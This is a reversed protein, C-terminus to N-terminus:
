QIEVFFYYPTIKQNDKGPEGVILQFDYSKNNFAINPNIITTYVINKASDSLLIQYFKNTQTNNNININTSRCSNKSINTTGVFFEPHATRSFTNSVSDDETSIQKLFTEENQIDTSDACNITAFNVDFARSAYVEGSPSAVSWNYFKNGQSDKLTIDGTINGFFGQWSSTIGTVNLNLRSVNNAQAGAPSPIHTLNFRESSIETVDAGSPGRTPNISVHDTANLATFGFLSGDCNVTYNFNGASNFSRNYTFLGGSYIMTSQTGNFDITCIAGSIPAGSSRNSYNAYVFVNNGITLRKTDSDDSINLESNEAAVYTTFHPVTFSLSGNYSINTCDTCLTDDKLIIPNTLNLNELVLTASKNLAPMAVSDLYIFNHSIHIIKDLDGGKSLNLNRNFHIKGFGQKSVSFNSINEINVNTFNTTGEDFSTTKIIGIHRITSYGVNGAEDACTIFWNHIGPSLKTNQVITSQKNINNRSAVLISDIYIECLNIKSADNASYRIQIKGDNDGSNDIPTILTINPPDKDLIFNHTTLVPSNNQNNLLVGDINTLKAVARYNVGSNNTSNWGNTKNWINAINISQGPKITTKNRTITNNLVSYIPEWKNHNYTEITLQLYGTINTTGTNNLYGSTIPNIENGIIYAPEPYIYQRIQKHSSLQTEDSPESSTGSEKEYHAYVPKNCTMMWGSTQWTRDSTTGLGFFIKNIDTRNGSTQESVKAGSSNYVACTTNPEPAAIAIYQVIEAAGYLYDLEKYPWFTNAEVGDSDAQSNAGVPYNTSKIRYAPGTGQTGLAGSKYNQNSSISTSSKTGDSIDMNVYAGNDGAGINLYNTPVGYLYDTTAPYFLQSDENAGGNSALYQVLIPIDSTIRVTDGDTIDKNAIYGSSNVLGNWIRTGSDYISVNATGFPSLLDFRSTYRDSRYYFEKGAQSIPSIIDTGDGQSTIHVAKEAKITENMSKAPFITTEGANLTQTSNGIIITNNDELSIISLPQTSLVDSVIYGITKPTSYSFAKSINSTKTAGSNKYYLYIETKENALMIPIKTWITTQTTNCANPGYEEYFFDLAKNNQSVMRLDSCDPKLKNQSILTKTDINIPVQYEYLTNGSNEQISIKKRELWSMNWWNLPNNSLLIIENKGYADKDTYISFSSNLKIDFTFQTTIDSRPETDQAYIRYSYTGTLKTDNFEASYIEGSIHHMDISEVSNDPLTINVKIYTIPYMTKANAYINIKQYPGEIPTNTVNYISLNTSETTTVITQMISPSVAILNHATDNQINCTINESGVTNDVFNFSAIGNSDTTINDLFGTENSSFTVVYNDKPTNSDNNIVTCNIRVADGININTNTTSINSIKINNYVNLDGLMTSYIDGISTNGFLELHYLGPIQMQFITAYINQSIQTLARLITTADFSIIQLWVSSVNNTSTINATINLTGNYGLTNNSVNINNFNIRGSDINYNLLTNFISRNQQAYWNEDYISNTTRFEYISGKFYNGGSTVDAYNKTNTGTYAIGGDGSHANILDPAVRSDVLKGNLILSYNYPPTNYALSMVAYYTKNAEIPAVLYDGDWAPTTKSWWRAYLNGSYIYMLIGNVSGGEALLTQRSTIDSTTKFVVEHARVSWESEWYSVDKMNWADSGSFKRGYGLFSNDASPSGVTGYYNINNGTVDTGTGSMHYVLGYNNNWVGQSSANASAASNNYYLMICGNKSFTPVNTWLLSDGTNNWTEIEYNLTSNTLCDVLRVDDGGFLTKNYDIISTNLHIALPFNTLNEGTYNFSLNIRETYNSNWWDNASAIYSVSLFILLAILLIVVLRTSKNENWSKNYKKM